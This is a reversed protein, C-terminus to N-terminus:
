LIRSDQKVEITQEEKQEGKNNVCGLLLFCIIINTDDDNLHAM